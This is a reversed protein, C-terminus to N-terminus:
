VRGEKGGFYPVPRTVFRNYRKLIVILEAITLGLILLCLAYYATDETVHVLLMIVGAGILLYMLIRPLELGEADGAKKRIWLIAGAIGATLLVIEVVAFAGIGNRGASSAIGGIVSALLGFGVYFLVLKLLASLCGASSKAEMKTRQKVAPEQFVSLLAQAPGRYIPGSEGFVPEGERNERKRRLRDSRALLCQTVLALLGCPLLLWDPRITLFFYLLAFIAAAVAATLAATKKPSVPVDCVIQGTEGNVATYLVREGERQALLWVPMMVIEEGVKADPLGFDRDSAAKVSDYGFENRVRELFQRAAVALAEKHYTEPKVDTVQAYFGSLYAPHFIEASKIRHELRAATEDEFATSADYLIGRRDIDADVTLSYREEYRYDGRTYTKYGEIGSMTGKASVHYSWFPIYVPRFHSVTEQKKLESPALPFGALYDKYIRECKERTIKFPVIRFPRASRAMRGTLVVDSGCFSCFATAETGSSIIAAGCQPCVYETVDMMGDDARGEDPLEGVACSRGCSDCLMCGRGIDYRLGGGCGPCTFRRGSSPAIWKETM